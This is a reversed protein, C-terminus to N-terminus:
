AIGSPSMAEAGRSRNWGASEFLWGQADTGGQAQPWWLRLDKDALWHRMADEPNPTRLLLDPLQGQLQAGHRQLREQLVALQTADFPQELLRSLLAAVGGAKQSFASM